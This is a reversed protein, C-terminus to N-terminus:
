PILEFIKSPKHHGSVLRLKNESVGLFQALTEVVAANARNDSAPARTHIDFRDDGKEVLKEEKAKPFVKVRLFIKANM